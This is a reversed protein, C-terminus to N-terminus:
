STTLRECESAIAEFEVAACGLKAIGERLRRIFGPYNGKYWCLMAQDCIECAEEALATVADLRAEIAATNM